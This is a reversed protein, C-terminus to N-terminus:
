LTGDFRMALPLCLGLPETPGISTDNNALGLCLLEDKIFQVIFESGHVNVSHSYGKHLISPKSTMITAVNELKGDREVM